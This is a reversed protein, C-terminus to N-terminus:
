SAASRRTLTVTKSSGTLNECRVFGGDMWFNLDGSVAPNTADGISIGSNAVVTTTSNADGFFDCAANQEPLDCYAEYRSFGAGANSSSIDATFYHTANNAIVAQESEWTQSQVTLAGNFYQEQSFTNSETTNAAEAFNDNVKDFAERATDANQDDVAAGIDVTSFAM